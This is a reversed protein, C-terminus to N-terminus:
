MVADVLQWLCLAGLLWLETKQVLWGMLDASLGGFDRVTVRRCWAYLLAAMPILVWGGTLAAAAGLLLSLVLLVPRLVAADAAECLTRMLGSGDALPWSLAALGALTRSLCFVCLVPVGRYLPLDSWLAFSAVFYVGLRIAAFAGIHEDRLIERRQAAKGRSAVADCVKAYGELHIGGTLLVPLLCLGAGQVLAPFRWAQALLVWLWCLGGILAGVLPLALLCLRMNEKTRRVRPTPLASFLAFALATAEAIRM